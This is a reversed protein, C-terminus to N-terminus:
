DGAVLANQRKAEGKSALALVVPEDTVPCMWFHSVFKNENTLPQMLVEGHSGDCRPCRGLAQKVPESM